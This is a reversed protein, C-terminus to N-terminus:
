HASPTRSLTILLGGSSEGEFHDGATRLLALTDNNHDNIQLAGNAFAWHRSTFFNGPCGGEPAITGTQNDAASKFMMGCPPSNNAALLWRGAMAIKPAPAEESVSSPLTGACASLLASLVAAVALRRVGNRTM